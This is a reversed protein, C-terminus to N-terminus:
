CHNITIIVVFAIISFVLYVRESELIVRSHVCRTILPVAVVLHQISRRLQSQAYQQGRHNGHRDAGQQHSGQDQHRHHHVAHHLAADLLLPHDVVLPLVGLLFWTIQTIDLGEAKLMDSVYLECIELSRSNKQIRERAIRQRIIHSCHKCLHRLHKPHILSLTDGLRCCQLVRTLHKSM